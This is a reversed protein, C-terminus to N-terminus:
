KCDFWSKGISIEVKLPITLEVVDNMNEQLITKVIEEEGPYCDVILEDHIQLILRSNIKREKIANSVKLMAIKIIDSATGQLPANIAVREGFKRVLPSSSSLEPIYRRRNFLTVSYGKEKANAISKNMCEKVAPFTEFYKEIFEKAESPKIDLTKALGYESIGYIIGFNVTKAIRRQKPTIKDISIGFVKSATASHIDHGANFDDLMLKDQSFHAMLRLEIQNYDASVIYGSDFSSVFLKRLTKGEDDRVPINQLNPSRSALRGTSTISQMFTTHVKDNNDLYPLFGSIYTSLLKNVKRYRLIEKVVPHQDSIAELVDASTSKKGRYKLNLQNFLLDSVQQPSNINFEKDVLKYIKQEIEKLEANYKENLEAMAYKDVKFGQDEMEYLIKVLPLEIDYYLDKQDRTQLEGVLKARAVFMDTAINNAKMNILKLGDVVNLIRDTQEILYIAISLDFFNNIEQGALIHMFEKADFLVKEVGGDALLKNLGGVFEHSDCVQASITYEYYRSFSFHWVKDLYCVAVQKTNYIQDFMDKLELQTNVNIREVDNHEDINQTDTNSAFLKTRSILSNFNYETFFTKVENAFPYSYTCDTISFPLDCNRDITALTKSLKAMEYGNQLKEHLKGKIEDLHAYINDLNDYERILNLATKEGIGAVGPINDSADGMLAKLDVVQDARVGFYSVINDPTILNFESDGKKNMQLSVSKDVLQLLDRDGSMIVVNDEANQVSLFGLIDDAEYREDDYHKIGMADLMEKVLPFQSILDEPTPHRQAKYDAFLKHRFTKKGKDFAVLIYDPHHQEIAGILMNCFGYVANCLKGSLSRLPPLAYYARFMLNNGDILLINRM